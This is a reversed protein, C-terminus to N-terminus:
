GRAQTPARAAADVVGKVYAIYDEDYKGPGEHEVAEWTVLLRVVNCGYARLRTFHVDAQDLPFPRGVFSVSAAHEFFGEELHSGVCEPPSAPYKCTGALNVGRLTLERGQPDVFAQGDAGTWM